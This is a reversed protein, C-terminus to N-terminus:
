SLVAVIIAYFTKYYLDRGGEALKASIFIVPTAIAIKALNKLSILYTRTLIFAKSQRTQALFYLILRFFKSPVLM